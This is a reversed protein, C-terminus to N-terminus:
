GAFWGRVLNATLALSVAILMPRIVRAGHRTATHSGLWAGAMSGCAMCAALLWLVQGTWAFVALSAINSTLNFLKALGTARTLGLGRLSVLTV